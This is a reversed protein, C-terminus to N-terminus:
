VGGCAVRRQAWGEPDAAWAEVDTRRWVVTRKSLRIAPPFRGAKEWRWRTLKCVRTVAAVEDCNLFPSEM